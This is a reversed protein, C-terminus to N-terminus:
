GCWSRPSPASRPRGRPARRRGRRPWRGAARRDRRPARSGATRRTRRRRGTAARHAPRPGARGRRGARRAPPRCPGSWPRRPATASRGPCGCRGAAGPPRGVRGPAAARVGLLDPEGGDRVDRVPTVVKRRQPALHGAVDPGHGPGRPVPAGGDVAQAELHRRQPLPQALGVPLLEQGTVGPGPVDGTVPHGGGARDQQPLQPGRAPQLDRRGLDDAGLRERAAAQADLEGVPRAAVDAPHDVAGARRAVYAPQPVRQEVVQEAGPGTRGQGRGGGRPHPHAGLMAPQQVGRAAGVRGQPRQPRQAAALQPLGGRHRLDPRLRQRHGSRHEVGDRRQRTTQGVAPQDAAVVGHGAGPVRQAQRQGRGRLRGGGEVRAQLPHHRQLGAGLLQQPLRRARGRSRRRGRPAPSARARPRRRWRRVRGRQEGGLSATRRRPSARSACGRRRPRGPPDVVHPGGPRWASIAWMALWGRSTSATEAATGVM